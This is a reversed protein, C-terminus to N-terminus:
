MPPSRDKGLGAASDSKVPFGSELWSLLTWHGPFLAPEVLIGQTGQARGTKGHLHVAVAGEAPHVVAVDHEVQKEAILHFALRGIQIQAPAPLPEVYARQEDGV